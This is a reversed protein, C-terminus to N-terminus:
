LRRKAKSYPVGPGGSGDVGFLVSCGRAVELLSSLGMKQSKNQIAMQFGLHAVKTGVHGWFPEWFQGLFQNKWFCSFM